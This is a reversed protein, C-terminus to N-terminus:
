EGTKIEDLTSNTFCYNNNFKRANATITTPQIHVRTDRWLHNWGYEYGIRAGVLGDERKLHSPLSLLFMILYIFEFKSPFFTFHLFYLLLMYVCGDEKIATSGGVDVLTGGGDGGSYDGYSENHTEYGSYDAYGNGTGAGNNGSGNNQSDWSQYNDEDVNNYINENKVTTQPQEQPGPPMGSPGTPQQSVATNNQQAPIPKTSPLPATATDAKTVMNGAKTAQGKITSNKSGDDDGYSPLM